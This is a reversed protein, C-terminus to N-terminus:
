AKNTTKNWLNTESVDVIFRNKLLKRGLLVPYRMNGRDTLSISSNIIKRAIKIKTRIVFRSEFDGFSNKILKKAFIKFRQEQESYEPHSPDLLKFCLTEIGDINRVEIDHCHLVSTYAGTDIKATLEYIGLEPFDVFERRGILRKEKETRM